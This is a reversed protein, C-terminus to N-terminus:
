QLSYGFIDAFEYPLLQITLRLTETEECIELDAHWGFVLRFETVVRAEMIDLLEDVSEKNGYVQLESDAANLQIVLKQLFQCLDSLRPDNVDAGHVNASFISIRMGYIDLGEGQNECGTEELLEATELGM